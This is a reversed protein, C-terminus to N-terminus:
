SAHLEGYGTLTGSQMIVSNTDIRFRADTIYASGNYAISGSTGPKKIAVTVLGDATTAAGVSVALGLLVFPNATKELITGLEVTWGRKKTRSEKFGLLSPDLIDHPLFADVLDYNLRLTCDTFIGLISSGNITMLTVDCTYLRAAPDLTAM